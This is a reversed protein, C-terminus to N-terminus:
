RRVALVARDAVSLRKIAAAVSDPDEVMVNHGITPLEVWTAFPLASALARGHLPPTLRDLTGTMVTIAVKGQLQKATVKLAGLVDHESISRGGEFSSMPAFESQLRVQDTVMRLTAIEGFALRMLTFPLNTHKWQIPPKDKGFAALKNITKTSRIWGGERISGDNARGSTALFLAGHLRDVALDTHSVLFRGLEMGGMSHGVLVADHLDLNTLLEAMDRAAAPITVGDTGAKSEGHGRMDWAIVRHSTRLASIVPAWVWWQASIGHCLVVTPWSSGPATDVYHIVGGDSTKLTAHTVDTPPDLRDDIAPFSTSRVEDGYSALKRNALFAGLAPVALGAVVGFRSVM